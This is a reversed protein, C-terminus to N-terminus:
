AARRLAPVEGGVHRWVAMTEAACREWTFPRATQVAGARLSQRWEDDSVIRLLATRWGDDDEPHILHAQRGVMEVVAAATSAIVAGGCAMMELPPLGFGEYYSPFFLAQAGNYLIPLHEDAVYGLHIVGADRGAADLFRRVDTANWGWGGALVLPWDARVASPLSHYAQLLRLVNKRPEITGLCLLYHRPLGLQALGAQVVDASLPRLDDRIGMYVRSVRNTPVGLVDIVERRVSDTDALFHAARGLVDPLQKEFRNVRDAPHWQPHLVVSLDHLTVVTPCDAPMALYNPEHYVDYRGARCTHSFRRDLFGQWGDRVMGVAASKMKGVLKARRAPQGLNGSARFFGCTARRVWGGPFGDIVDGAAQLRACRILEATYHGIGTRQKLGQLENVIVRLAAERRETALLSLV